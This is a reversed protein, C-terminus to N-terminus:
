LSQEPESPPRFFEETASPTMFEPRAELSSRPLVIECDLGGPKLEFSTQAALQYPLGEEILQRGFGHERPARAMVPVGTESWRLYLRGTQSTGDVSWEIRLKGGHALAGFKVANTTLEHVALAILEVSKDSLLVAPGTITCMPGDSCGVAFLEERVIDELEVCVSNSVGLFSQYRAIANLRGEFHEAFEDQSASNERTRRLVSRIVALMNTVRHQLEYRLKEERSNSARLSAQLEKLENWASALRGEGNASQEDAPCIDLASSRVGVSRRSKPAIHNSMRHGHQRM